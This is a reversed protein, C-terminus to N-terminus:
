SLYWPIKLSALVQIANSEWAISCCKSIQVEDLTLLGVTHQVADPSKSKYYASIAVAGAGASVLVLGGRVLSRFKSM